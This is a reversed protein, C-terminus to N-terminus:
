VEEKGCCRKYKKGSGCPCPANRPYSEQPGSRLARTVTRRTTRRPTFTVVRDDEEDEEEDEEEWDEDEDEGKRWLNRSARPVGQFFFVILGSVFLLVIAAQYVTLAAFIKSLLLGLGLYACAMGFVFASILVLVILIILLTM